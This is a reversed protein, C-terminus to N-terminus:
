ISMLFDNIQDHSYGRYQLFRFQKAKDKPSHQCQSGFKKIFVKELQVCWDRDLQDLLQEIMTDSIGREKLEYRIRVPGFGRNKRMQIYQQCFRHENLYDHDQLRELALSIADQDYGKRLLKLRLEQASHERRYLLQVGSQYADTAQSAVVSAETLREECSEQQQM